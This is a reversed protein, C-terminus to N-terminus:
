YSWRRLAVVLSIDVNTRRHGDPVALFGVAYVLVAATQKATYLVSQLKRRYVELFLVYQCSIYFYLTRGGLPPFTINCIAAAKFALALLFKM